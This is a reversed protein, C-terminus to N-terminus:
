KKISCIKLKTLKKKLLIFNTDSLGAFGRGVYLDIFFSGIPTACAALAGSLRRHTFIM